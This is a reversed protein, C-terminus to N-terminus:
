GITALTFNEQTRTNREISELTGENKTAERLLDKLIQEQTRAGSMGSERFARLASFEGLSGRELAGGAGFNGGRKTSFVSDWAEQMQQEQFAGWTRLNNGGLFGRGAGEFGIGSAQGGAAAWRDREIRDREKQDAELRAQFAATRESTRQDRIARGGQVTASVDEFSSGTMMAWIGGLGSGLRFAAESSLQSPMNFADQGGLMPNRNAQALTEAAYKVLPAVMSAADAEAQRFTKSLESTAADIDKVANLASKDIKLGLAVTDKDGANMRRMTEMGANVRDIAFKALGAVSAVRVFNGILGEAAEKVGSSIMSQSDIKPQDQKFKELARRANDLGATFESVDFALRAKLEDM